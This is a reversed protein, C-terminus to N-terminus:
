DDRKPIYLIQGQEIEGSELKNLQLLEVSSLDYRDAISELTDEKQAIVMKLRHFRDEEETLREKLWVIGAAQVTGDTQAGDSVEEEGGDDPRAHGSPTEAVGPAEIEEHTARRESTGGADEEPANQKQFNIITETAETPQSTGANRSADDSERAAEDSAATGDDEESSRPADEALGREEADGEMAAHPLEAEEPLESEEKDTFAQIAAEDADQEGFRASMATDSPALQLGDVVLLAEIELAHASRLEYDFSQIEATIDELKGARESPLTIEVPLIYQIDEEAPHAAADADAAQALYTGSLRIAGQIKVNSGIEEIRVDPTLDLSLLTDIGPQDDRFTVTEAIDFRLQSQENDTM